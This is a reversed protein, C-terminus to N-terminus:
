LKWPVYGGPLEAFTVKKPPYFPWRSDGLLTPCRGMSQTRFFIVAHNVCFLFMCFGLHNSLISGSFNMSKFRAWINSMCRLKWRNLPFPWRELRQLRELVCWKPYIGWEKQIYIDMISGKDKKGVLGRLSMDVYRKGRGYLNVGWLDLM